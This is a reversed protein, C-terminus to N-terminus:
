RDRTFLIGNRTFFDALKTESQLKMGIGKPTHNREIHYEMDLETKCRITCQIGDGQAWLQTGGDQLKCAFKFDKQREHMDLHYHIGSRHNTRFSCHDCQYKKRHEHITEVHQKLDSRLKFEKGCTDCKHLKRTGDHDKMHTRLTTMSSYVNTCDPMTCAFKIGN